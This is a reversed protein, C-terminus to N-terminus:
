PTNCRSSLLQRSKKKQSVENKDSQLANTKSFRGAGEAAPSKIRFSSFRAM